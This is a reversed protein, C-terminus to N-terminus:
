PLVEVTELRLAPTTAWVPLRQGNKACWGAGGLRPAGGVGSVAGLLGAVSGQLRFPGVADTALGGRIRRAHPVWLTFRGSLPDLHGRSAEAIALGHEADQLLDDEAHPGPLVELHVSRPGPPLHRSGRRGAGPLLAASSGAWLVDALPQSVVGDRLLWRRLTAMGEDDSQRATGGPASHPDDLVSLHEPALRAGLAGAPDGGMALIDAELAHAVAEHLFVAAAAPALVAVTRASAPPAAQRARFLNALRDGLEEAEGPGLAPLLAGLRGWPTEAVCSYFTEHQPTPVLRPGVVQLWRRHRRLVLQLPFAVHRRRLERDLSAPFPALEPAQPRERWPAVAAAPEAYAAQPLVRAVQRLAQVFANPALSDRSALWTQRDRLLRVALGEERWCRLGLGREPATLEIEESREFYGDVFDSEREAIQALSRAVAATDLGSLPM